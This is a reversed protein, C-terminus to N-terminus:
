DVDWKLVRGIPGLPVGPFRQFHRHGTDIRVDLALRARLPGSAIHFAPFPSLKWDAQAITVMTKLNCTHLLLVTIEAQTLRLAENPRTLLICCYCMSNQVTRKTQGVNYKYVKIASPLEKQNIEYYQASHNHIVYANTLTVDERMGNGGGVKCWKKM